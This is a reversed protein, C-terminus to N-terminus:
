SPRVWIRGQEVRVPFPELQAAPATLCEGSDCDFRFGHWPCTITGQEPDIMGGDLPLGQHACENRYARIPGETTLRIVLVDAEPTTVVLPRGPELAEVAPGERWGFASPDAGQSPPPGLHVLATPPKEDAAADESPEAPVEVVQQIFSCQEKIATEVTDRLTASAMSCGRCSGNLRVFATQDRVEVLEVDGGHGQLTPRIMELVRNVLTLPDARILGHMAFIMRVAPDDVLEFLIEKGRPDAKLARVIKTLAVQHVREVTAKLNLASARAQEPLARVEAISRDVQEALAEFDDTTLSPASPAPTSPPM